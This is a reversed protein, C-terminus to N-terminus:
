YHVEWFILGKAPANEGAASRKKAALVCQAWEPDKKGKGVEALTGVITRVMSHLFANGVVKIQLLEEGFFEVNEFSIESVNRMTTKDVSSCALCFSKFDHEGILFQSAQVMKEVDLPKTVHWSFDSAFIPPTKKNYIYYHYIREKASFRASFEEDVEKMELVSIEDHTLANLSRLFSGDTNIKEEICFSVVQGRAHVGTDTRGACVTQIDQRLVTKLADEINGQVTLQEPQRAFGCFPSGNYAIKLAYNHM